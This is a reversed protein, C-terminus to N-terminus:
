RVARLWELLARFDIRQIAARLDRRNVVRLIVVDTGAPWFLARFDGSRIEWYDTARLKKVKGPPWPPDQLLQLDDLVQAAHRSELDLLDRQARPAYVIRRRGM